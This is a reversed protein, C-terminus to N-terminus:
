TSPWFTWFFRDPESIGIAVRAEECVAVSAKADQSLRAIAHRAGAEFLLMSSEAFAKQAFQMNNLALNVDDTALARAASLAAAFGNSLRTGINLLKEISDDLMQEQDSRVAICGRFYLAETKVLELGFLLSKRFKQWEIEFPEYSFPERGQLAIIANSVFRYYDFLSYDRRPNEFVAGSAMQAATTPNTNELWGATMLGLSMVAVGFRDNRRELATHRSLTLELFKPWKGQYFYVYSQFATFNIVEWHADIGPKGFLVLAERFFPEAEAWRANHFHIVGNAAAYWGNLWPDNLKRVIPLATALITQAQKETKSGEIALLTAECCIGRAIRLEDGAGLARILGRAQMEAGLFVDYSALAIGSGWAADIRLLEMANLKEKPKTKFGYGRLKLWGRQALLNGIIMARNKRIPEGVSRMVDDVLAEGETFHGSRLYQESARQRLRLQEFGKAILATESFIRAAEISLGAHVLADGKKRGLRVHDAAPSGALALDFLKVAHEFAFRDVTADGVQEALVAAREKEGLDFYLGALNEKDVRTAAELTQVLRRRIWTMDEPSMAQRCVVRLRDHLPAIVDTRRVGSSRTMRAHRLVAVARMFEAFPIQATLAVVEQEVANTLLSLVDMVRRHSPELANLQALLADDLSVAQHGEVRMLADIFLPHGVSREAVHAVAEPKIGLQAGIKDVAEQSERLSLPKVNLWSDQSPMLEQFREEWASQDNETRFTCVVMFRQSQAPNVIHKLMAWADPGAWHFDDLWLVLTIHNTLRRFFERLQDFLYLRQMLKDRTPDPLSGGMEWGPIRGLVPFIQLLDLAGPPLLPIVQESRYNCLRATIADIAADMGKYVSSEREYSTGEIFWYERPLERSFHRLLTSKGIGTPGGVGVVRCENRGILTLNRRLLDMETQRGVFTNDQSKSLSQRHAESKGELVELCREITPRDGPAFCLMADVLHALDEDCHPMLTLVNPAVDTQKMRLVEFPNGHFPFFGTIAQFLMVGVSYIDAASTIPVSTAQEPSMYFATGVIEQEVQAIEGVLGFDLVTTHGDDRVVINHPKMDRHIKGAEHLARLGKLVQCTVSRLRYGNCEGGLQPNTSPHRPAFKALNMTSGFADTIKDLQRVYTLYDTGKLLEMCIYWNDDQQVLELLEVLHVHRVAQVTRFETKLRSLVEGRDFRLTKLAVHNGTDLDIAEYVEGMGGAGVPSLIRFRNSVVKKLGEAM